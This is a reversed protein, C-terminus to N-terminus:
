LVVHVENANSTPVMNVHDVCTMTSKAQLNVDNYNYNNLTM